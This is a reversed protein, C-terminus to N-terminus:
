GDVLHSFSDDSIWSPVVKNKKPDMPHTLSMLCTIKTAFSAHTWQPTFFVAKWWWSATQLKMESFAVMHGGKLLM